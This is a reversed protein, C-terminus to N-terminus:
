IDTSFRPAPPTCNTGSIYSSKYKLAHPTRRVPSEQVSGRPTEAM